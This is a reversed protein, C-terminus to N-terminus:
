KKLIFSQVNRRTAIFSITERGEKRDELDGEKMLIFHSKGRAQARGKEGELRKGRLNPEGEFVRKNFFAYFVLFYIFAGVLFIKNKDKRKRGGEENKGKLGKSTQQAFLFLFFLINRGARQTSNDGEGREKKKREKKIGLHNYRHVIM